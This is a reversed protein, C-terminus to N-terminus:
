SNPGDSLSRAKNGCKGRRWVQGRIEDITYGMANLFNQNAFLIRGDLGFEIVAQTKAIAALQARWDQAEELLAGKAWSSKLAGSNFWSM